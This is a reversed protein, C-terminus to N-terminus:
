AQDAQKQQRRASDRRRKASEDDFNKKWKKDSKEAKDDEAQKAIQQDLHSNGWETVDKARQSIQRRENRYQNYKEWRDSPDHSYDNLHNRMTDLAGSVNDDEISEGHAYKNDREGAHEDAHEQAMEVWHELETDIVDGVMDDDLQGPNNTPDVTGDLSHPDVIYRGTDHDLYADYTLDGSSEEGKHGTFWVDWNSSNSIVGEYKETDFGENTGEDAKLRKNKRYTLVTAADNIQDSWNGPGETAKRATPNEQVAASADKIIYHLQDDPLDWFRENEIHAGGRPRGDEGIMKDLKAEDDATSHKSENEECEKKWNTYDVYRKATMKLIDEETALDCPGEDLQTQKNQYETTKM